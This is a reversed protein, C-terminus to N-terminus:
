PIFLHGYTFLYSCQFGANRLLHQPLSFGDAMHHQAQQGIPVHQEFAQGAQGLGASDLRQGGM